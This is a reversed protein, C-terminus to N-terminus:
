FKVWPSLEETLQKIALSFNTSESDFHKITNIAIVKCDATVLPGGSNGPNIVADTQIWKVDKITRVASIIGRTVSIEFSGEPVIAFFDAKGERRLKKIKDRWKERIEKINLSEVLDSAKGPFGCAYVEDGPNFETDLVGLPTPFYKDEVKIIAADYYPCEHIIRAKHRDAARPGFCAVLECAIVDRDKVAEHYTNIIHKNTILYGDKSVAFCSGSSIPITFKANDVPDDLTVVIFLQGVNSKATAIDFAGSYTGFRLIHWPFVYIFLLIVTLGAGSCGAFVATRPTIGLLYKKTDSEALYPQLQKRVKRALSNKRSAVLEKQWNDITPAIEESSNIAKRVLALASADDSSQGYVRAMEFYIRALTSTDNQAFQEAKKLLNLAMKLKKQALNSRAQEILTDLNSAM